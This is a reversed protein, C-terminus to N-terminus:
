GGDSLPSPPLCSIFYGVKAKEWGVSGACERFLLLFVKEGRKRRDKEVSSFAVNRLGMDCKGRRILTCMPHSQDFKAEQHITALTKGYLPNEM